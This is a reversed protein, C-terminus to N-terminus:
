VAGALRFHVIAKVPTDVEQNDSFDWGDFEAPFIYRRVPVSQEDLVCISYDLRHPQLRQLGMTYAVCFSVREAPYGTCVYQRMADTSYDTEEWNANPIWEPTGICELVKDWWFGKLAMLRYKMNEAERRM